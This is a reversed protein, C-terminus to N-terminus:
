PPQDRRRACQPGHLRQPPRVRKQLGHEGQGRAHPVQGGKDVRRADAADRARLRAPALRALHDARADPSRQLPEQAARARQLHLRHAPVYETPFPHVCQDTITYDSDERFDRELPLDQPVEHELQARIARGVLLPNKMQQESAMINSEINATHQSTDGRNCIPEFLALLGEGAEIYRARRRRTKRGPPRPYM